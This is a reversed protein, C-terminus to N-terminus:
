EIIPQDNYLSVIEKETLSDNFLKVGHITGDFPIFHNTENLVVGGLLLKSFLRKHPTIDTFSAYLESNVFIDLKTGTFNVSVFYFVDKDLVYSDYFERSPGNGEQYNEAWLVQKDYVATVRNSATYILFPISSPSSFKDQFSLFAQPKSGDDSFTKYSFSVNFPTSLDLNLGKVELFSSNSETTEFTVGNKDFVVNSQTFDTQNEFLLMEYILISDLKRQNEVPKENNPKSQNTNNKCSLILIIVLFIFKRKNM